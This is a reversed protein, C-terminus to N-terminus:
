INHVIQVEALGIGIVSSTGGVSAYGLFTLLQSAAPLDSTLTGEAVSGTLVDLVRYYIENAGRPSILELVYVNARDATPRPFSAGLNIKTAAGVGDNHMIQINADGSDWGMGVIQTLTSPNVDTPAAANGRVGVFARHTGITQGTATKWRCRLHFGGNGSITGRAFFLANYRFGAVATTAAATVLFEVAPTSTFRNTNAVSYATVTGTGTITLGLGSLTTTNPITAFARFATDTALPLLQPFLPQLPM